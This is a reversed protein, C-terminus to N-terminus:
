IMVRALSFVHCHPGALGAVRSWTVCVSLCPSANGLLSARGASILPAPPSVRVRCWACPLLDRSLYHARARRRGRTMAEPPPNPWPAALSLRLWWPQERRAGEGAASALIVHMTLKDITKRAGCVLRAVGGPWRPRGTSLSLAEAVCCVVARAWPLALALATRNRGPPAFPGRSQDPSYRDDGISVLIARGCGSAGRGTATAILPATPLQPLGGGRLRSAVVWCRGSCLTFPTFPPNKPPWHGCEPGRVLVILGVVAGVDWRRPATSSGLGDCIGQM